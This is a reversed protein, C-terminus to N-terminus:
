TALGKGNYFQTAPVPGDKYVNLLGMEPTPVPAKQANAIVTAVNTKEDAEIKAVEAETAVKLDVLFQRYRKIPDRLMWARLEDDSRYNMGWAGDVGAKAGAFGSHDYWRYTKTEIVTPGGGKRALDVGAKAATYVSAVDNGDVSFAQVGMGKVLDSLNDVPSVDRYYAGSQYLNNEIVFMCPVKFMFANRVANFFYSSNTAGDGAFSVAIRMSKDVMGAWGAGFATYWGGGVIGNAALMGVKADVIHMTGGYGGCTGTTRFMIEDCCKQLDSGKIIAGGQSRHTVSIMDDDNLAMVVGGMSAEEGVYSYLNGVMPDTQTALRYDKVATEYTRSRFMRQYILLLRAKPVKLLEAVANEALPIAASSSKPLSEGFAIAPIASMFATAAGAAGLTKLFDRRSLPKHLVNRESMPKM